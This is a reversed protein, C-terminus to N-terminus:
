GMGGVPLLCCGSRPALRVSHVNGLIMGNAGCACQARNYPFHDKFWVLLQRWAHM